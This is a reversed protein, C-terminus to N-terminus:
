SEAEPSVAGQGHLTRQLNAYEETRAVREPHEPVVTQELITLCGRLLREAETHRGQAIRIRALTALCSDLGLHESGFAKVTLAQSRRCLDEAQDLRGQLRVIEALVNLYRSLTPHNPGYPSKEALAVARRALPEAESLRAQRRCLDALCILAVCGLPQGREIQPTLLDMAQRTLNEAEVYNGRVTLAQALNLLASGKIDRRSEPGSDSGALIDRCLPEADALCGQSIYVAALQLRANARHVPRPPEAQEFHQDAQKLALEAEGLRGETRYIAGLHSLAMGLSLHRNGRLADAQTLAKRCRHEARVFDASVVARNAAWLNYVMPLEARVDPRCLYAAVPVAMIPVVFCAGILVDGRRNFIEPGLIFALFLTLGFFFVMRAVLVSGTYVGGVLALVGLVLSATIFLDGRGELFPLGLVHEMVFIGILSMAMVLMDKVLRLKEGNVHPGDM